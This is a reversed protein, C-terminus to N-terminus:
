WGIRRTTKEKNEDKPLEAEAPASKAVPAAPLSFTGSEVSRIRAGDYYFSLIEQYSHGRSAMEHAGWQSMGVGHGFGRGSFVYTDGQRSADFWTSKLGADPVGQIVAIRFANAQVSKRGPATILEVDLLRGEASRDGLV